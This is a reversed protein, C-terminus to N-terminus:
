SNFEELKWNGSTPSWWLFPKVWPHAKIDEAAGWAPQAPLESQRLAVPPVWIASCHRSGGWGRKSCSKTHKARIGNRADFSCCNTKRSFSSTASINGQGLGQRYALLFLTWSPRIEKRGSLFCFFVSNGGEGRWLSRRVLMIVSEGSVEEVVRGWSSSIIINCVGYYINHHSGLLCHFSASSLYYLSLSLTKWKDTSRHAHM